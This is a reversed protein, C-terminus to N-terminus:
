QMVTLGAPKIPEPVLDKKCKVDAFETPEESTENYVTTKEFEHRIKAESGPPRIQCLKWLVAAVPVLYMLGKLVDLGRAVQEMLPRERDEEDLLRQFEAELEAELEEIDGHVVEKDHLQLHLDHLQGSIEALMDSQEDIADELGGMRDYFDTVTPNALTPDREPEHMPGVVAREPGPGPVVVAIEPEPEHVREHGKWIKYLRGLGIKYERRVDDAPMVGRLVMIRRLDEDSLPTKKPM